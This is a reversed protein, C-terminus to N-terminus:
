QRYVQIMTSSLSFRCAFRVRQQRSTCTTSNEPFYLLQQLDRGHYSKAPLNTAHTALRTHTHTNLCAAPQSMTEYGLQKVLKDTVSHEDTKAMQRFTLKNFIHHDFNVVSHDYPLKTVSRAPTLLAFKLRSPHQCCM